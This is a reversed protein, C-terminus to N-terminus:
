NLNLKNSVVAFHAVWQHHLVAQDRNLVKGETEHVAVSM